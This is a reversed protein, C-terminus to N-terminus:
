EESETAIEKGEAQRREKLKELQKKERKMFNKMRELAMEDEKKSFPMGLKELLVFGEHNDKSSTNIIIELGRIKDVKNTDVEPFVTHEKIGLTYSGRGDFSKRSVGRFDKIRPLVYTVLREFFDWMRDGRLTVKLGIKAGLRLKFNSIAKKSKTIIPKQGSIIVLDANMKELAQPNSIAEGLGVNLVIKKLTPVDFDNKINLEKKVSKLIEKNFQEKLHNM